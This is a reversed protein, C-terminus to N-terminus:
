EKPQTSADLERMFDKLEQDSIKNELLSAVRLIEPTVTAVQEAQDSEYLMGKAPMMHKALLESARLRLDIPIDHETVKVGDTSVLKGRVIERWFEILMSLDPTLKVASPTQKQAKAM